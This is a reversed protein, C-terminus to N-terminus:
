ERYDTLKNGTWGKFARRFNSVSNYGLLYGIEKPTLHTHKLYQLALDKRTEDLIQQYTLNEQVLRRRLTRSGMNLRRSMEELTPFEGPNKVLANRIKSSLLDADAMQDIIAKCQKECLKCVEENALSIRNDQSHVDWLIMTRPQDFYIPCDFRERYVEVDEPEPYTVRIELVPFPKNTLDRALGCTRSVFEEVAFVVLDGLPFIEKLETCWREATVVTAPLLIHEVLADYRSFLERSHSLNSASLAAYGLVGLNSVKFEDGLKFGIHADGTLTIINNIVARYQDPTPSFADSNIQSQDLGTDELVQEASFGRSEMRELYFCFKNNTKLYNEPM